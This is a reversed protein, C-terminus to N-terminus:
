TLCYRNMNKKYDLSIFQLSAYYSDMIAWYLIVIIDRYNQEKSKRINIM